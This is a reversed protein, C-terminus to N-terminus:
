GLYKDIDNSVEEDFEDENKKDSKKSLIREVCIVAKRKFEDLDACEVDELLSTVDELQKQSLDKCSEKLYLAKEFELIQKRQKINESVAKDLEGKVKEVKGELDAVVDVKEEPLEVNFEGFVSKMGEVLKGALEVTSKSEMAVKNEEFYKETAYTTYEDLKNTMEKKFEELDAKASEELEAEKEKVDEKVKEVVLLDFEDKIKQAMEETFVDEGLSKRLAELIKDM